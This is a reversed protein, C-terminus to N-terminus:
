AKSLKSFFFFDFDHTSLTGWNFFIALRLEYSLKGVFNEANFLVPKISCIQSQDALAVLGSFFLRCKFRSHRKSTKIEM